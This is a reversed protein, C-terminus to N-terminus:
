GAFGTKVRGVHHWTSEHWRRRGSSFKKKIHSIPSPPSFRNSNRNGWFINWLYDHATRNKIDVAEVDVGASILWECFEVHEEKVAFHLATRGGYFVEKILNGDARHIMKAIELRNKKVCFHLLNQLDLCKVKTSAGLDLLRQAGATNGCRIAVHLPSMGNINLHDLLRCNIRFFVTALMAGFEKNCMAFHLPSSQKKTLSEPHLGQEILWQCMERGAFQAAYHLANMGGFDTSNILSDDRQHVLKAFNLENNVVLFLFLNLHSSIFRWPSTRSVINCFVNEAFEYNGKRLAYHIPEEGDIDKARVDLRSSFSSVIEMGFDENVAAFHLLTVGLHTKEAPDAGEKYLKMFNDLDSAKAALMLPTAGEELKKLFNKTDEAGMFTNM